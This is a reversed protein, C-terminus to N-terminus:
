LGRCQFPVKSARKPVRKLHQIHYKRFSYWAVVGYELISRVMSKYLLLFAAIPANKFNCKLLSVMRNAKRVTQFIHNNFILKFDLLIDLDMTKEAEALPVEVGGQGMLGYT